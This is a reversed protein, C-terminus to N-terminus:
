AKPKLYDLSEKLILKDLELDAVIKKLRQNEKELNKMESMRARNMGGYKRRWGYYTKDSVGASRCASVVDMGSNCHGGFTNLSNIEEARRANNAMFFVEDADGLKSNMDELEAQAKEHAQKRRQVIFWGDLQDDDNIVDENPCDMSEQINDYMNSWILIGKQDNTLSRSEENHFLKTHDKTYWHLKWPDTRALERLQTESLLSANYENYFSMLQMDDDIQLKQSGVYCSDRFLFMIKEQMALGEATNQFFSDKENQFKALGKQAARLYARASERMKPDNRYKYVNVKLKEIDQELARIKEDKEESWLERSIMWELMEDQTMVGDSRIEDFAEMFIDNAEYETDITPSLVKITINNVKVRQYGSRIRSVFYEREYLNMVFRM